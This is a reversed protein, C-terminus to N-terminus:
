KKPLLKNDLGTRVILVDCPAHSNVFSAVSGEFIREAANKGTAGMMILDTDYDHTFDYTIINKPSGFRVHMHIDTIGTKEKTTKVLDKLYSIQDDVMQTIADSDIVGYSFGFSTTNLVNLVDVRAQNRMAVEAAKLLTDESLKSGDVPVLIRKYENLM